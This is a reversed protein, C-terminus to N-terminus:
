SKSGALTIAHEAERALRDFADKGHKTEYDIWHCTRAFVVLNRVRVELHISGGCAYAVPTLLNEAEDALVGYCARITDYDTSHKGLLQRGNRIAVEITNRSHITKFEPRETLDINRLTKFEPVPVPQSAHFAQERAHFLFKDFMKDLANRRACENGLTVSYRAPDTTSSVGIDTWGNDLTMTCTTTRKDIAVVFAEHAIRAKVQEMTVVAPVVHTGVPNPIAETVEAEEPATTREPLGPTNHTHAKITADTRLSAVIRDIAIDADRWVAHDLPLDELEMDFRDEGARRVNWLARAVRERDQHKMLDGITSM